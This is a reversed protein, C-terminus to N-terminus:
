GGIQKSKLEAQAQELRKKKRIKENFAKVYARFSEAQEEMIEEKTLAQRRKQEAKEASGFPEAPYRHNKGLVSAVAEATYRGSLWAFYNLM